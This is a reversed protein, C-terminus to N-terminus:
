ELEKEFRVRLTRIARTDKRRKCPKKQPYSAKRARMKQFPNCHIDLITSEKATRVWQKPHDSRDYYSIAM